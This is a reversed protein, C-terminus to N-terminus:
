SGSGGAAQNPDIDDVQEHPGPIDTGGHVATGSYLGDEPDFDIADRSVYVQGDDAIEDEPILRQEDRPQEAM